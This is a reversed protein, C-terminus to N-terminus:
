RKKLFNALLPLIIVFFLVAVVLIIVFLIGNSLYLNISGSTHVKLINSEYENVIAKVYISNMGGTTIKYSNAKQWTKGLDTSYYIEADPNVSSFELTAPSTIKPLNGIEYSQNKYKMIATPKEPLVSISYATIKINQSTESTTLTNLETFTDNELTGITLDFNGIGIIPLINVLNSTLDSEKIYTTSIIEKEEGNMKFKVVKIALNEINLKGYTLLSDVEFKLTSSEEVEEGEEVIQNELKVQLGLVFNINTTEEIPENIANGILYIKYEDSTINQSRPLILDKPNTILNHSLNIITKGNNNNLIGSLDIRSLQNNNAIFTHLGVVNTSPTLGSLDLKSVMNGSINLYVLSPMYYDDRSNFPNINFNVEELVDEKQDNLHLEKLKPMNAFHESTVVTISNGKLNLVELNDFYFLEIGAISEIYADTITLETIDTFSLNTINEPASGHISLYKNCLAEYLNTDIAGSQIVRLQRKPEESDESEGSEGSGDSGGAEESTSVINEQSVSKITQNPQPLFTIAFGILLLAIFISILTIKNKFKVM